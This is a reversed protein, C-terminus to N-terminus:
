KTWLARYDQPSPNPADIHTQCAHQADSETQWFYSNVKGERVTYTRYVESFGSPLARGLKGVAAPARFIQGTLEDKDIDLHARVAVNMPLAGFRIMLMEELNEREGGYWQRPDKATKNLRYQHNKRAALGMFTVSDVVATQWLPYEDSFRHMRAMFRNYAEPREPDADFYYEVQILLKGTKRSTVRRVPTGLDDVEVDAFDGRKLYPVDKGFPDFFFVIMPKPFTAIGTSGGTGSEGYILFHAPLTRLANDDEAM